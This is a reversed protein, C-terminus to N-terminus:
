IETITIASVPCIEVCGRCYLCNEPRSPVPHGEKMEFVDVPCINLCEGCGECAEEDVGILYVEFEVPGPRRM